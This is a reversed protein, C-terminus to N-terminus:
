SPSPTNNQSARPSAVSLQNPVWDVHLGFYRIGGPRGQQQGEGAVLRHRRSNDAKRGSQASTERVQDLAALSMLLGVITFIVGAIGLLYAAVREGGRVFADEPDAPNYLVPVTDGVNRPALGVSDTDFRTVRGDPTTFDITYRPGESYTSGGPPIYRSVIRGTALTHALAGRTERRWRRVAGFSAALGGALMALGFFGLLIPLSLVARGTLESSGIEL